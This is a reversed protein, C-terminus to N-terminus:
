YLALLAMQFSKESKRQQTHRGGMGDDALIRM